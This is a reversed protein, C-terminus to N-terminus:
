TGVEESVEAAVREVELRFRERDFRPNDSSLPGTFRSVVAARDEESLGAQGIARAITVYDRRTM